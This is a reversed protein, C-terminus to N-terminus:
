PGTKEVLPRQLGRHVLKDVRSDFAAAFKDLQSHVADKLATELGDVSKGQDTAVKALSAGGALKKFLQADTVGLYKAAADLVARPGGALDPGLLPLLLFKGPFGRPPAGPAVLPPLGPVRLRFGLHGRLRKGLPGRPVPGFPPVFRQGLLPGPLFPLGGGRNIKTKIADAQAKTLKGAAVAADIRDAFAGQLAATLDASSVKLRKAVDDLFAQRQALLGAPRVSPKDSGRTAAYTGGAAALVAAAVVVIVVKRNLPLKV